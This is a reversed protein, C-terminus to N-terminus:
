YHQQEIKPTWAVPIREGKIVEPKAIEKRRDLPNCKVALVEEAHDSWAKHNLITDWIIGIDYHNSTNILDDLEEKTGWKTRRSGKQHFEGLDYSHM